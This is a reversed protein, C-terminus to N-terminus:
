PEKRWCSLAVGEHSQAVACEYGPKVERVQIPVTSTSITKMGVVAYYLGAGLICVVVTAILAFAIDKASM